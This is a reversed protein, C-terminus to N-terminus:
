RFLGICGLIHDPSAPHDCCKKCDPHINTGSHFSLCKLHGSTLRALAIQSVRDCKIELLSGSSTRAYWQHTPSIHWMINLKSRENSHLEQYIRLSGTITENKSGEKVLKDAVENGCVNVHSPLWQLHVEHTQSIKRLKLLISISSEDCASSWGGLHQLASRSDTLDLKEFDCDYFLIADLGVNIGILESM